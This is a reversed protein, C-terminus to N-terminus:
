IDTKNRKDKIQQIKEVIWFRVEYKPDSETIKMSNEGFVKEAENESACPLCLAPFMVCWWNKGKGEGIIVKVAEYNGAPLTYKDYTRTPFFSEGIEVKVNYDFGKERVTDAASKEILAIHNRIAERTEDKTRCDKFLFATKELISDRVSLKLSQDKESDSAAIIHLRLCDQRIQKCESEFSLVSMLIVIFLASFSAIEFLKLKM